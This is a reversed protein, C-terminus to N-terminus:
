GERKCEFKMSNRKNRQDRTNYRCVAAYELAGAIVGVICLIHYTKLGMFVEPEVRLFETFFRLASYAMLYIPFLTGKKFKNRCIFLFVFLLLAVVAELLQIPFEILRSTPNFFGYIWRVGRCCGAFHCGIKSFFLALPYAPTILDLQALPDIRLLICVFVVLIPTFFLMGFYNAGTELLDGVLSNFIGIYQACSILLTELVVWLGLSALIRNVGRRQKSAFYKIVSCSVGGLLMKKRKYHLLNYLLVMATAVINFFTYLSM